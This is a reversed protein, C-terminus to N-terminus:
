LVGLVFKVTGIFWGQYIKLAEKPIPLTRDRAHYGSVSEWRDVLKAARTRWHFARGVASSEEGLRAVGEIVRGWVDAEPMRGPGHGADELLQQFVQYARPVFEPRRLCISIMSISDIVGASAYIADRPDTPQATVDPPLPPPLNLLSGIRRPYHDSRPKHTRFSPDHPSFPPPIEPEIEALQALPSLRPPTPNSLARTPNITRLNCSCRSRIPSRGLHPLMTRRLPRRLSAAFISPALSHHLHNEFFKLDVNVGM